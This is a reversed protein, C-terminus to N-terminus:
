DDIKLFQGSTNFEVELGNNLEIEFGWVKSNVKTIIATPFNTKVYSPIAKPLLKVISSPIERYKCDVEEWVGNINFEIESADALRVEYSHSDRVCNVVQVKAFHTNVFDQSAAPLQDFSVFYDHDSAATASLATSVLLLINFLLKRMISM